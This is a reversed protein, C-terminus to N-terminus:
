STRRHAHPLRSLPQELDSVLKDLTAGRHISSGRTLTESASQFHSHLSRLKACDAASLAGSAAAHELLQSFPENSGRGFGSRLQAELAAKLELVRLAEPTTPASLVASRGALGGQAVLPTPAAYKPNPRLYPRGGSRWAWLGAFTACLFALATAVRTPLGRTQLDRFAAQLTELAKTFADRFDTQGGFHGTQAFRNVAIYLKGHRPGWTDSETLYKVLGRALKENGEFQMMLDIFVSPDSMAFLRGCTAKDLTSSAGNLGCAEADGIVGVVALAVSQGDAGQIDLVRTLEVGPLERLGQPHNTVVGDVEEAIPHTLTVGTESTSWHAHAIALAPNNRFAEKPQPAAVRELQFRRLLDDARGFDDIVGLRGGASLFASAESFSLDAEPHIVLLADEPHLNEWDITAEVVIRRSGVQDRAVKLFTSLADWEPKRFSFSEAHARNGSCLLAELVLLGLFSRWKRRM